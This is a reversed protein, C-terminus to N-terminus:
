SQSFMAPSAAFLLARNSKGSYLKDMSQEIIPGLRDAANIWNSRITQEIESALGSRVAHVIAGHEVRTPTFDPGILPAYFWEYRDLQPRVAELLAQTEPGACAAMLQGHFAEHLEFLRVYNPESRAMEAHFARENAVLTNALESREYPPRLALARGAMGELAAALHYLETMRDRTLPAVAVRDRIGSGGGVSVLLRDHKLRQIAERIPTRSVGLWDALAGEALRAGPPLRGRVILDRLRAYSAHPQM